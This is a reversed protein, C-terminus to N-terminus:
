RGSRPERREQEKWVRTAQSVRQLWVAREIMQAIAAIPACILLGLILIIWLLPISPFWMGVFIDEM